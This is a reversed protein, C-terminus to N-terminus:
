MWGWALLAAALAVVWGLSAWAAGQWRALRRVERLVLDNQHLAVAERAQRRVLPEDTIYDPGVYLESNLPM